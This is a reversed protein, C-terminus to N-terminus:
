FTRVQLNMYLRVNGHKNHLLIHYNQLLNKLMDVM